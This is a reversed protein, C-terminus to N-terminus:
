PTFEEEVPAGTAVDTGSLAVSEVKPTVGGEKSKVFIRSLVAEQGHIKTLVAACGDRMRVRFQRKKQAKFTLVFTKPEPGPVVDVGYAREREIRSLEERQGKDANLAWYAQVPGSPDLEGSADLKADYVVVNANKSRALTFLHEPCMAAAGRGAVALAFLGAAMATQKRM